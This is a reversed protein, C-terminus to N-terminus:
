VQTRQTHTHACAHRGTPATHTHTCQMGVHMGHTHLPPVGCAAATPSAARLGLSYPLWRGVSSTPRIRPPFIGPSPITVNESPFRTSPLRAPRLAHDCLRLVVSHSVSDSKVKMFACCPLPPAAARLSQRVLFSAPRVGPLSAGSSASQPGRATPRDSDPSPQSGRSFGPPVQDQSSRERRSPM